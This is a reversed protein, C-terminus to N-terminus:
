RWLGGGRSRFCICFVSEFRCYSRFFCCIRLSML